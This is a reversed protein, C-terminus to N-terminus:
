RTKLGPRRPDKVPKFQDYVHGPGFPQDACEWKKHDFSFRAPDIEAFLRAGFRDGSVWCIEALLTEGGLFLSVQEGKELRSDGRVRAGIGLPSINRVIIEQEGIRGSRLKAVFMRRSRPERAAKSTSPEQADGPRVATM